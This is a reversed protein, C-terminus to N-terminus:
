SGDMANAAFLSRLESIAVFATSALKLILLRMLLAFILVPLCSGHMVHNQGIRGRESRCAIKTTAMPYSGIACMTRKSIVYAAIKCSILM